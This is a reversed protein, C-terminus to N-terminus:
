RHNLAFVDASISIRCQFGEVYLYLSCSFEWCKVMIVLHHSCFPSQLDFVDDSLWFMMITSVSNSCFIKKHFSMLIHTHNLLFDMSVYTYMVIEAKLLEKFSRKLRLLATWTVLKRFGYIRCPFCWWIWSLWILRWSGSLTQIWWVALLRRGCFACRLNVRWFSFLILGLVYYSGLNCSNASLNVFAFSLLHFNLWSCWPVIYIYMQM